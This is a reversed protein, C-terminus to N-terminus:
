LSPLLTRERRRQKSLALLFNPTLTRHQGVVVVVALLSACDTPPPNPAVTQVALADAFHLGGSFSQQHFSNSVAILLSLLFLDHIAFVCVDTSVRRFHTRSLKSLTPVSSFAISDIYM